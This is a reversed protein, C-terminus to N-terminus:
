LALEEKRRLRAINGRHKVIVVLLMVALPVSAADFGMVFPYSVAILVAGVLSSLSVYRTAVFVLIFGAFGIGALQPMHAVIVGLATAVGKGGRFGLWVPFCHGMFAAAGVLTEILSVPGSEGIVWRAILVPVAGKAVDFLLTVVGLKKGVVRAVNTAGINGSGQGRVDAKALFRALLFGFPISGVLYGLLALPAFRPVTLAALLPDLM